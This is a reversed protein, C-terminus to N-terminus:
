IIVCGLKLCIRTISKLTQVKYTTSMFYKGVSAGLDELINRKDQANPAGFVLPLLCFVLYQM